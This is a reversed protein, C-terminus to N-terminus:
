NSRRHEEVAKAGFGPFAVQVRGQGVLDAGNRMAEQLAHSLPRVQAIRVDADSLHLLVAGKNHVVIAVRVFYNNCGANPMPIVRTELSHQLDANPFGVRKWVFMSFAWCGALVIGGITVLSQAIECLTKKDALSMNM